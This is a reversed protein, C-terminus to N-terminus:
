RFEAGPIWAPPLEWTGGVPTDAGARRRAEALSTLYGHSRYIAQAEPSELFALFAAALEPDPSTTVRAAPIYGIRPVEGPALEVREVADPNWATFVEWGLVADVAGLAIMQATKACSEAYGSIRPRVAAGLGRGELAEVGYLGVCVTDPRALGVRLDPRALDALGRVQKPNGKAVLLAPLLYALRVETDPEVTGQERARVMFDSSGPLYIDGLGTLAIQSLMAGSGGFHLLVEAGTQEQFLHAAEVLAPQIASGAFVRVQRGAWKGAQPEPGPTCAAVLLAAVFLAVGALRGSYQAAM